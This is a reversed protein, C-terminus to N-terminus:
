LFFILPVSSRGQLLRDPIVNYGLTDGCELKVSPLDTYETERGPRVYFQCRASLHASDGLGQRLFHVLFPLPKSETWRNFRVENGVSM